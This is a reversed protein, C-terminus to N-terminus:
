PTDGGLSWLAATGSHLKGSDDPPVHEFCLDASVLVKLNLFEEWIVARRLLAIHKPGELHGPQGPSLHLEATSENARRM